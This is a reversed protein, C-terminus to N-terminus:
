QSLSLPKREKVLCIGEHAPLNGKSREELIVAAAYVKLAIDLHTALDHSRKDAIALSKRCSQAIRLKHPLDHFLKFICVLAIVACFDSGSLTQSLLGPCIKNVFKSM